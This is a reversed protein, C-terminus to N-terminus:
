AAKSAWMITANSFEVHRWVNRNRVNRHRISIRCFPSLNMRMKTRAIVPRSATLTASKAEAAGFFRSEDLSWFLLENLSVLL